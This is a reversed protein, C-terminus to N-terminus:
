QMMNTSSVCQLLKQELSDSITLDFINGYGLDKLVLNKKLSRM